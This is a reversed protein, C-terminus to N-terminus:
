QFDKWVLKDGWDANIVTVTVGGTGTYNIRVELLRGNYTTLPNGQEDATVTDILAGNHYIRVTINTGTASSFTNFTPIEFQSYSNVTSFVGDEFIFNTDTGSPVGLFDVTNYDTSVVVTFNEDKTGAYEQLGRIKINVSATIRTIDLIVHEQSSRDNVVGAMGWFLDSLSTHVATSFDNKFQKFTITGATIRDGASFSTVTENTTSPNAVAVVQLSGADPYNLAITENPRAIHTGIFRGDKDFVYLTMNKIDSSDVPDAGAPAVVQVMITPISFCDSLDENVCGTLIFPLMFALSLPRLFYRYIYKGKM